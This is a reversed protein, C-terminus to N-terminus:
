VSHFTVCGLELFSLACGTSKMGPCMPLALWPRESAERMCSWSPSKWCKARCALPRCESEASCPPSNSECAKTSFSASLLISSSYWPLPTPKPSPLAFTSSTPCETPPSTARAASSSSLWGEQRTRSRICSPEGLVAGGKAGSAERDVTYRVTLRAYAMACDPFSDRSAALQLAADPGAPTPTAQPQPPQRAPSRRTLTVPPAASRCTAASSVSRRETNGGCLLKGWSTLPEALLLLLSPKPIILPSDFYRSLGRSPRSVPALVVAGLSSTNFLVTLLLLLTLLLTLMLSSRLLLPLLPLSLPRAPRCYTDRRLLWSFPTPKGTSWAAATHHLSRSPTTATPMFLSIASGGRESTRQPSTNGMSCMGLGGLLPLLVSTKSEAGGAGLDRM